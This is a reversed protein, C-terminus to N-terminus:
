QALKLYQKRGPFKGYDMVWVCKQCHLCHGADREGMADNLWNHNVLIEKGISVMDAKTRLLIDDAMKPSTIGNAVFVPINVIDKIKETAYIHAEFPYDDPKMPQFLSFCGFSINLYDLHSELAKAYTLSRELTPEFAGM